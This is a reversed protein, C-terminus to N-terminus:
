FGLPLLVSLLSYAGRLQLLDCSVASTQSVEWVVNGSHCIFKTCAVLKRTTM